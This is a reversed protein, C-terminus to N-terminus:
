AIRTLEVYAGAQIVAATTGTNLAATFSITGATSVTFTGDVNVELSAATANYLNTASTATANYVTAIAAAQFNKATTNIASLVATALTFAVAIGSTGNSTNPLVLKLRYTGVSIPLTAMGNIAVPTNNALATSATSRYIDSIFLNTGSTSAPSGVGVGSGVGIMTLVNAATQTIIYLATDGPGVQTIGSVTVGVGGTLTATAATANQYLFQVSAGVKGILAPNAAVIATGTDTTDTFAATATTRDVYGGAVMIATITGNGATNLVTITPSTTAISDSISGTGMHTFVITPSAATGGVTGFLNTEQFPGAINTVPLTVGSGAALTQTFATANKITIVFTGGSVFSGIATVIAAATDTTDTYAAVPGTRTILGGVLGAGTLVGAGVTTIPTNIIEQTQGMGGLDAIQRTTVTTWVPGNNVSVIESGSLSSQAIAGPQSPTNAM